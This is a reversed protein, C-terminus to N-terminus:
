RVVSVPCPSGGVIQGAVSGRVGRTFGARMASGVVIHDVGESEAYRLISLAIKHSRLLVYKAEPIGVRDAVERAHSLVQDEQLAVDKLIALSSQSATDEETIHSVYAYILDAGFTKAWKAAYVEAKQALESHDTACLIKHM